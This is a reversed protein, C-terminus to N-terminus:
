VGNRIYIPLHSVVSHLEGVSEIIEPKFVNGNYDTMTNLPNYLRMYKRPGTRINVTAVSDVIYFGPNAYGWSSYPMAYYITDGLNLSFDYMLYETNDEYLYIYVKQSATDERIAAIDISPWSADTWMRKYMNAGIATDAYAALKDLYYLSRVPVGSFAHCWRTTDGLMPHYQANAQSFAIFMIFALLIKKM